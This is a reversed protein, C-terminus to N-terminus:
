KMKPPTTSNHQVFSFKHKCYKKEPGAHTTHLILIMYTDYAAQFATLDVWISKEDIREDIEM